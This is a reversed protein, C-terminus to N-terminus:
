GRVNSIRPGFEFRLRRQSVLHGAWPPNGFTWLEGASYGSSSTGSLGGGAGGYVVFALLESATVNLNLPIMTYAGGTAFAGVNVTQLVVANDPHSAVQGRIDLFFNGRGSGLIDLEVLTGTIGVTFTQAQQATGGFGSGVNITAPLSTQDLIPTAIAPTWSVAGLGVMFATLLRATNLKARECNITM